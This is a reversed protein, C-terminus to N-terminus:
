RGLDYYFVNKLKSAKCKSDKEAELVEKNSKKSRKSLKRLKVYFAIM